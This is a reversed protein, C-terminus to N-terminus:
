NFNRYETYCLYSTVVNMEPSAYKQHQWTVDSMEMAFNSIRKAYRNLINQHVVMIQIQKEM